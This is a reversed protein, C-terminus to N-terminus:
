LDELRLAKPVVKALIRHFSNTVKLHTVVDLSRDIINELKRHRYAMQIENEQRENENESLLERAKSKIVYFMNEVPNLECSYPTLRNITYPYNRPSRERIDNEVTNHCPANDMIIVPNNMGLDQAKNLVNIIFDAVHNKRAGGIFVECHVTGYHPAVALM